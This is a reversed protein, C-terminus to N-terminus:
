RGAATNDAVLDLSRESSRGLPYRALTGPGWCIAVIVAVAAVILGAVRYDLYSGSIQFLLRTVNITMHFLAMGFVSKGTNNFLWVM